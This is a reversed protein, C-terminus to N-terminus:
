YDARNECAAHKLGSVVNPHDTETTSTWDDKDRVTVVIDGACPMRQPLGTRGAAERELLSWICTRTVETCLFKTLRASKDNVLANLLQFLAPVVHGYPNKSGVSLVALEADVLKLLSILSSSNRPWAGHHPIKVLNSRLVESQESYLTLIDDLGDKEVDALMLAIFGKYTFKLVVSRENLGKKSKVHHRAAFLQDPHVVFSALHGSQYSPTLSRNPHHFQITKVRWFELREMAHHLEKFKASKTKELRKLEEYVADFAENLIFVREVTGGLGFWLELFASFESFPAFHDRHTHTIYISGIHLKRRSLLFDVVRRPIPIDVIVTPDDDSSVIISDANEVALFVFECPM